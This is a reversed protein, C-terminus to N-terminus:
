PAPIDAVLTGLNCFFLSTHQGKEEELSYEAQFLYMLRSELDGRDFTIRYVHDIHYKEGKENYHGPVVVQVITERQNARALERKAYAQLLNGSAVKLRNVDSLDQPTAGSPTSVVITKQLIHGNAKCRAPGAAANNFAQEKGIRSQVSEQGQWLPLIINPVTAEARICNMSIVNSRRQTKSLILHGSDAQAMNPKAVVILGNEDVWSLLNLPELFRQLASLKSEGPSTAALYPKSTANQKRIGQIRTNQILLGVFQDITVSNGWLPDAAISVCDQDELQSMLNRGTITVKEGFDQDVSVSTSDIIGRALAVGNAYVSVIDGSKVSKNFPNPDDPAVFSFSFAEVPILVSQSFQYSLFRNVLFPASGDIPTIQLQVPPLRGTKELQAQLGGPIIQSFSGTLKKSLTIAM